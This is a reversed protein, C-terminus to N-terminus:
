AEMITRKSEMKRALTAGISYALAACSPLTILIQDYCRDRLQCGWGFYHSLRSRIGESQNFVSATESAPIAIVAYLLILLPVVWAWLMSSHHLRRYLTWGLGMGIAVQIPFYPTETMIWHLPQASFSHGFLEYITTLSGGFMSVIFTSLYVVGLSGIFQHAAFIVISRLTGSKKTDVV